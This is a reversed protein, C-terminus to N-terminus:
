YESFLGIEVTKSKLYEEIERWANEWGYAVICAYGCRSLVSMMHAQNKSVSGKRSKMEVFLGHSNGRPAPIFIDPIGSRVGESKLKAAVAVHREGGNPVAFCGDLEPYKAANIKFVEFLRVQEEHESATKQGVSRNQRTKKTEMPRQEDKFNEARLNSEPTNKPKKERPTNRSEKAIWAELGGAQAIEIAKVSRNACM